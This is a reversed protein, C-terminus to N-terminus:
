KNPTTTRTGFVRGDDCVVPRSVNRDAGVVRLPADPVSAADPPAGFAQAHQLAAQVARQTKPLTKAKREVVFSAFWLGGERKITVSKIRGDLPRHLAMRVPGLKGSMGCKPLFLHRTAIKHAHRAKGARGSPAAAEAETRTLRRIQFQAPQPLRFRPAEAHRRWTPRENQGKFFRSWGDGLDLIACQLAQAPVEKLFAHARKWVPIRKKLDYASPSAGTQAYTEQHEELALNYVKRCCGSVQLFFAEQDPTPFLRYRFALVEVGPVSRADAGVEMFVGVGAGIPRDHTGEPICAPTIDLGTTM